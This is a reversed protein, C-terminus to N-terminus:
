MFPDTDYMHYFVHAACDYKQHLCQGSAWHLGSENPIKIVNQKFKGKASCKM